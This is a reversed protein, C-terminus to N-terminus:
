LSKIKQTMTIMSIEMMLKLGMKMFPLKVYMGVKQKKMKQTIM